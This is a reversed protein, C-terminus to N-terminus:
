TRGHHTWVPWGSPAASSSATTTSCGSSPTSAPRAPPPRPTSPRGSDAASPRAAYSMSASDVRAIAADLRDLQPRTAKDYGVRAQREREGWTSAHSRWVRRMRWGTDARAAFGEAERRKQEAERLARAAQGAPTDGWRGRGYDLDFREPHLRQRETEAARVAPAPDRPIAAAVADREAQLRARRLSTRM